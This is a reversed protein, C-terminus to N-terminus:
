EQRRGIILSKTGSCSLVFPGLQCRHFRTEEKLRCCHQQSRERETDKEKRTHSDVSM